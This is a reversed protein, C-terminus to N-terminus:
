GPEGPDAPGYGPALESAPIRRGDKTGGVMVPSTGRVFIDEVDPHDLLPQLAHLAQPDIM